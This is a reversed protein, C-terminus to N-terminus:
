QAWGQPKNMWEIHIMLDDIWDQLDALMLDCEGIFACEHLRMSLISGESCASILLRGGDGDYAYLTSGTYVPNLSEEDDFTDV